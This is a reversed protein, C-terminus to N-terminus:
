YRENQRQHNVENKRRYAATIEDPSFGLAAGLCLYETFLEHYDASAKTMGFRDAARFVALFQEVLPRQASPSTESEYFLGCELGLSLLFHLGDVYEELVKEAPSSPKVSWFKFCRTENALEGLEVLFALHKRAFLDEAELGHQTEIRTDLERQMDYLLPWNM